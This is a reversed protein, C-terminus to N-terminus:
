GGDRCRGSGPAGPFADAHNDCFTLDEGEAKIWTKLHPVAPNAMTEARNHRVICHRCAAITVGHYTM